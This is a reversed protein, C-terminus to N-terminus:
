VLLQTSLFIFSGMLRRAPSTKRWFWLVPKSLRSLATCRAPTGGLVTEDGIEQDLVVSAVTCINPSSTQFIAIARVEDRFAEKPRVGISRVNCSEASREAKQINEETGLGQVVRSQARGQSLARSASAAGM